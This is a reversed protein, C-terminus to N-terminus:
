GPQAVAPKRALMLYNVGLDKGLSWRDRLPDFSMGTLDAVELGGARAAAALESPKLFKRWEHTGRPLWRLVYEAAVIGLLFSRATRNLTTLVVAGGPATLAAVSDLFLTVDAVHEVVELALVVDFRANTRALDEVSQARYDIALGEAAAHTRADALNRETADLGTVAFGIRTMPEAILGGGCGVDLLRLGEFPRLKAADRGFHRVLHDRIYAIRLPNIRHLPRFPGAEDWWTGSLKGFREIEAPDVTTESM